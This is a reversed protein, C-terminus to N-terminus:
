LTLRLCAWDNEERVDALTLRLEAAKATLMPIDSTYFGSLILQAGPAMKLRFVPMDNLLINRNINAVIIDFTGEV